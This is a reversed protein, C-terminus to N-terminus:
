EISPFFDLSTSGFQIGKLDLYFHDKIDEKFFMATHLMVNYLLENHLIIYHLRVNHLM